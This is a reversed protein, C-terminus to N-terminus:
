ASRRERIRDHVYLQIRLDSAAVHRHSVMRGFTFHQLVEAALEEARLKDLGHARATRYAYADLQKVTM